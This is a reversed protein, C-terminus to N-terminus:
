YADRSSSKLEARAERELVHLALGHDRCYPCILRHILSPNM